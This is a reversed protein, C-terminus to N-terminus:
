EALVKRVRVQKWNPDDDVRKPQYPKKIQRPVPPKGRNVHYQDHQASRDGEATNGEEVVEAGGDAAPQWVRAAAAAAARQLRKGAGIQKSPSTPFVSGIAALAKDKAEQHQRQIQQQQLRQSRVQVHQFNMNSPGLAPHSQQRQQQEHHQQPQQQEAASGGTIQLQKWAKQLRAGVQDAQKSSRQAAAAHERSTPELVALVQETSSNSSNSLTNHVQLLRQRVPDIGAWLGQGERWWGYPREASPSLHQGPPQSPQEPLYRVPHQVRGTQQQQQEVRQQQQHDDQHRSLSAENSHQIQPQLILQRQRQQQQQHGQKQGLGVTSGPDTVATQQQSKDEPCHYPVSTSGPVATMHQQQDSHSFSTSAPQGMQRCAPQQPQLTVQTRFVQPKQQLQLVSSASHASSQGAAPAAQGELHDVVKKSPLAAKKDPYQASATQTGAQQRHEATDASSDDDRLDLVSKRLQTSLKSSSSLVTGVRAGLIQTAQQQQMQMHHQQQLLGQQSRQTQQQAQCDKLKRVVSGLNKLSAKVREHHEKIRCHQSTPVEYGNRSAPGLVLHSLVDAMQGQGCVFQQVPALQM